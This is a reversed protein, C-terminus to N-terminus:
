RREYVITHGIGFIRRYQNELMIKIEPLIMKTKTGGRFENDIIFRPPHHFLKELTEPSALRMLAEHTLRGHPILYFLFSDRGGYLRKGSYFNIAKVDSINLIQDEKKANSRIFRATGIIEEYANHPIYHSQKKKYGALHDIRELQPIEFVHYLPYGVEFLSYHVLPTAWIGLFVIFVIQFVLRSPYLVFLIQELYYISAGLAVIWPIINQLLHGLDPTPYIVHQGLSAAMFLGVSKILIRNKWHNLHFADAHPAMKQWLVCIYAVGFLGTVIWPLQLWFYNNLIYHISYVEDMWLPPFKLAYDTETLIKPFFTLMSETTGSPAFLMMLIAVMGLSGLGFSLCQKIQFVGNQWYAASAHSYLRGTEFSLTFLICVLLPFTLHWFYQREYNPAIFVTFVIIYLVAVSIKCWYLYLARQNKEIGDINSDKHNHCSFYFCIYLGALLLFLGSSIKLFVAIGTLGGAVLCRNLQLYQPKLLLYLVMLTLPYVHMHAYPSYNLCVPIGLFIMVILFVCISYFRNSLIATLKFAFFLIVLQIFLMWVRVGIWQNGALKYAAAPLLWNLPGYIDLFDRYPLEGNVIRQLYDAQQAEDGNIVPMFLNPSLYVLAIPFLIFLPHCHLSFAPVSIKNLNNRFTSIFHSRTM